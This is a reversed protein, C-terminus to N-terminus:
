RFPQEPTYLVLPLFLQFDGIGAARVTHNEADSSPLFLTAGSYTAVLIYEGPTPINISCSGGGETLTKTCKEARGTVAVTVSGSPTGEESTVAFHVTFPSGAPSPDPADSTITTTTQGSLNTLSFRDGIEGSVAEVWYPGGKIGNATATFQLIGTPGSTLTSGSNSIGAGTEPGLFGVTVGGLHNGYVDKVEVKLPNPFDTLIITSQGSGSLATLSALQAEYAGIDCYGIRRPFGRQDDEPCLASNAQNIAPSGFLLAHTQVIKETGNMALPGLLPNTNSFSGKAPQLDCTTGSDLNHGRDGLSDTCNDGPGDLISNQVKVEYKVNDIQDGSSTATNGSLTCNTVSLNSYDYNHIGGGYAASNGSLTNNFLRLLPEPDSGSPSREKHYIGGGQDVAANQSFESGTILGNVQEAYVGAGDDATNDQFLSDRIIFYQGDLFSDYAYLAGGDVDAQNNIFASSQVDLKSLNMYVGAGSGSTATNTMFESSHIVVKGHNIYLGGGYNAGNNTVQTNSITMQEGWYMYLGGGANTTGDYGNYLFTSSYVGTLNSAYLGAGEDAKNFNFETNWVTLEGYRGLVGGGYMDADNLIFESDYIELNGNESYIGAGKEAKNFYFYSDRVIVNGNSVYIGGGLSDPGTVKNSHFIINEIDVTGGHVYVGAGNDGSGVFGNYLTLNKLEVDADTQVEFIRYLGNGDIITDGGDIVLKGSNQIPPLSSSLEVTGTVAFTITDVGIGGNCYDWSSNNNASYIAERLSCDMDENFEDELTTVVISVAPASLQKAFAPIAYASALGILVAIVRLINKM